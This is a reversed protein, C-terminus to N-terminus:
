NDVSNNQTWFIIVLNYIKGLRGMTKDIFPAPSYNGKEALKVLDTESPKVTITGVKACIDPLLATIPVLLLSLWFMPTTGILEIIAAMGPAVSLGIPYTYSYGVLFLFWFATSGFIALNTYKNWSDLCLLAKANVVLIVCSYCINGVVLYDGDRGNHWVQGYKYIGLPIFFIVLSHIVSLFIWKWFVKSSFQDSKQSGKYLEPNTMRTDAKCNQDFLGIAFPQLFTFVM